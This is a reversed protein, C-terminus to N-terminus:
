VMKGKLTAIDPGYIALARRAGEPTVPCNRILNKTLIAVFEAESPRGLKRYLTRAADAIQRQSFTKKNAAVTSVLTHPVMPAPATRTVETPAHSSSNYIYLGSPHEMVKMVSGDRRHVSLCADTSTDLTVRCVKRVEALSLINAISHPNYWVPGLNKFTGIMTSDQHGGNTVARLTHESKRIDSLM